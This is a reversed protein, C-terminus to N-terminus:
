SGTGQQGITNPVSPDKLQMDIAGRWLDELRYENRVYDYFIHVMLSGYDVVVWRGEKLGEIGLPLVGFNEKVAKIVGEGMSAAQRSSTGSCIISYETPKDLPRLDFGKLNIAKKDFLVNACFKTFDGFDAIRVDLPKYLNNEKIYEEVNATLYKAVSQGNRLKKRVETASVDIDELRVFHIFRGSNLFAVKKDFDAVQSRIRKPFDELTYPFQNGSRSTVVLNAMELIKELDKWDDMGYFVDVGVILFLDDPKYSKSYSKLTEVTFSSGGRAVEQEDVQLLSDYEAVGIRVMELRQEPNPGEIPEKVPNQYTPIVVVKQLGVKKAVTVMSNLHGVHLPNFTGGFIGIRESTEM